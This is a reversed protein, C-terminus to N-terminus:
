FRMNGAFAISRQVGYQIEATLGLASDPNISLGVIGTFYRSGTVDSKAHLSVPQVSTSGAGGGVPDASVSVTESMNLTDTGNIRSLSVGGYPRFVGSSASAGFFVDLRTLKLQETGNIAAYPTNPYYYNTGDTAGSPFIFPGDIDVTAQQARLVLGMKVDSDALQPLIKAGIARISSRQGSATGTGINVFLQSRLNPTYAIGVFAQDEKLTGTGASYSVTGSSTGVGFTATAAKVDLALDSSGGGGIQIDFSGPSGIVTPNGFMDAAYLSTPLLYLTLIGCFKALMNLKM